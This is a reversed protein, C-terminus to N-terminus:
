QPIILFRRPGQYATKISIARQDVVCDQLVRRMQRLSRVNKAELMHQYRRIEAVTCVRQLANIVGNKELMRVCEPQLLQLLSLIRAMKDQLHLLAQAETTVGYRKWVPEHHYMRNRFERTVKTADSAFLLTKLSKTYPWKGKFVKGLYQPFLLGPGNLEDNLLNEWVSFETKSIIQAPTPLPHTVNYRTKLETVAKSRASQLGNKINTIVKPVPGGPVFTKYKLSSGSWWCSQGTYSALAQDLANRLTIEVTAVLPHFASSVQQNWLYCGMLAIDDAPNFVSIYSNM